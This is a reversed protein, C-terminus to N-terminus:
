TGASDEEGAANYGAAKLGAPNVWAAHCAGGSVVVPSDPYEKDLIGRDPKLNPFLRTTTCM